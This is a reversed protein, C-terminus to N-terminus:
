KEVLNITMGPLSLFREKKPMLCELCRSSVLLSLLRKLVRFPCLFPCFILFKSTLIEFSCFNNSINQWFIGIFTLIIGQFEEIDRFAPFYVSNRSALFHCFNTLLFNSM